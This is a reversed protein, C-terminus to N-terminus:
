APKKMAMREETEGRLERSIQEALAKEATADRMPRVSSKESETDVSPKQTVVRMESQLQQARLTEIEREEQQKALAAQFKDAISLESESSVGNKMASRITEATPTQREIGQSRVNSQGLERPTVLSAEVAVPQAVAMADQIGQLISQRVGLPNALMVVNSNQDGNVQDNASGVAKQEAQPAATPQEQTIESASLAATGSARMAAAHAALATSWATADPGVM